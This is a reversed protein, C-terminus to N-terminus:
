FVSNSDIHRKRPQQIAENNNEVRSRQGTRLLKIFVSRLLKLANIAGHMIYIYIYMGEKIREGRGRCNISLVGPRAVEAKARTKYFCTGRYVKTFIVCAVRPPVRDKVENRNTIKRSQQLVHNCGRKSITESIMREECYYKQHIYNNPAM